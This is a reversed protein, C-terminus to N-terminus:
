VFSLYIYLSLTQGFLLSGKLRKNDTYIILMMDFIQM